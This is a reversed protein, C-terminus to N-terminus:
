EVTCLNGDFVVDVQSSHPGLRSLIVEVMQTQAGLQNEDGPPHLTLRDFSKVSQHKPSVANLM